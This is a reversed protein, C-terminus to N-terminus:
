LPMAIKDAVCFIKDFLRQRIDLNGGNAPSIIQTMLTVKSTVPWSNNRYEANKSYNLFFPFATHIHM